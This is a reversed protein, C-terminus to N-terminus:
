RYTALAQAVRQRIWFNREVTRQQDHALLKYAAAEFGLECALLPVVIPM